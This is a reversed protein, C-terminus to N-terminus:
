DSLIDRATSLRSQCRSDISSHKSRLRGGRSRSPIRDLHKISKKSSIKWRYRNDCDNLRYKMDRLDDMAMKLECVAHAFILEPLFIAILMWKVKRLRPRWSAEVSSPPNLHLITWTCAIVTSLCGWILSMTGRRDCGSEWGVLAPEQSM